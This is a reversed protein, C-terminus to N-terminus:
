CKNKEDKAAAGAAGAVEPPSCARSLAFDIEVRLAGSVIAVPGRAACARLLAFAGEFLVLEHEVVKMYRPLKEAVCAAVAEPSRDYTACTVGNRQLRKVMNAGMRGLGIMAFNTKTASNTM